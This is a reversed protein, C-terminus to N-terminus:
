FACTVASREFSQQPASAVAGLFSIGERIQLCIMSSSCQVQTHDGRQKNSSFGSPTTDQTWSYCCRGANEQGGM